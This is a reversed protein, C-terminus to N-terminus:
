FRCDIWTSPVASSLSKVLTDFGARIKISKVIGDAASFSIDTKHTRGANDQWNMKIRDHKLTQAGMSGSPLIHGDSDLSLISYYEADALKDSSTKGAIVLIM